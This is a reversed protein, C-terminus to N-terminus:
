AWWMSLSMTRPFKRRSQSVSGRATVPQNMLRKASAVSQAMTGFTKPMLWNAPPPSM